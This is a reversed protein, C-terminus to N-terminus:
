TSPCEYLVINKYTGIFIVAGLFLLLEQRSVQIPFVKNEGDNMEDVGFEACAGATAPSEMVETILNAGTGFRWLCMSTQVDNGSILVTYGAFIDAVASKFHHGTQTALSM